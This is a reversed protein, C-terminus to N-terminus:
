KRKNNNNDDNNNNNVKCGVCQGEGKRGGKGVIRGTDRSQKEESLINCM